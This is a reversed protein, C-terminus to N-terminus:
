VTHAIQGPIWAPGTAVQYLLPQFTHYNHRDILMVEVPVDALTRAAELGGFGAGIVIVRPKSPNLEDRGADARSTNEEIRAAPLMGSGDGSHGPLAGDAHALVPTRATNSQALVYSRISHTHM